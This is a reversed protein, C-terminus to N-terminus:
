LGLVTKAKDLHKAQKESCRGTKSVTTAIKVSLEPAKSVDPHSIIQKALETYAKEDVTSAPTPDDYKVADPKGLGLQVFADNVHKLQKDTCRKFKCVTSVISQLYDPLSVFGSHGKVQEAKEVGTLGTSDPKDTLNDVIDKINKIMPEPIKAVEASYDVTLINYKELLSVIYDIQSKFVYYNKLIDGVKVIEDVEFKTLDVSELNKFVKYAVEYHNYILKHNYMEARLAEAFIKQKGYDSTPTKQYDSIIEAVGDSWSSQGLLNLEEIFRASEEYGKQFQINKLAEKQRISVDSSYGYKSPYQKRMAAVDVEFFDIHEKLYTKLTILYPGKIRQEREIRREEERQKQISTNVINKIDSVIEYVGEYVCSAELLRDMGTAVDENFKIKARGYKGSMLFMNGVKYSFTDCSVLDKGKIYDKVDVSKENLLNYYDEFKIYGKSNKLVLFLAKYKEYLKDFLDRQELCGNVILKPLLEDIKDTVMKEQLPANLGKVDTLVRKLERGKDYSFHYDNTVNDTYLQYAIFKVFTDIDPTNLYRSLTEKLTELNLYGYLKKEEVNKNSNIFQEQIEKLMDSYPEMQKYVTLAFLNQQYIYQQIRKNGRKAILLDCYEKFYDKNSKEDKNVLNDYDSNINSANIKGNPTVLIPKSLNKYMTGLVAQLEKADKLLNPVLDKYKRYMEKYFDEDIQANELTKKFSDKDYVNYSRWRSSIHISGNRTDKELACLYRIVEKSGSAYNLYQLFTLVNKISEQLLTKYAEQMAYHHLGIDSPITDPTFQGSNFSKKMRVLKEQSEGDVDVVEKLPTGDSRRQCLSIRDNVGKLTYKSYGEETVVKVDNNRIVEKKTMFLSLCRNVHAKIADSNRYIDSIGRSRLHKNFEEETILGQSVLSYFEKLNILKIMATEWLLVTKYFTGVGRVGWYEPEPDRVEAGMSSALYNVIFDTFAKQLLSSKALNHSILLEQAYKTYDPHHQRSSKSIVSNLKKMLSEPIPLKADVFKLAYIVYGTTNIQNKDEVKLTLRQLLRQELPSYMDEEDLDANLCSIIHEKVWQLSRTGTSGDGFKIPCDGNSDTVIKGNEDWKVVFSMLDKLGQGGGDLIAKGTHGGLYKYYENYMNLDVICAIKKIDKLTKAQITHMSALSGKDMNFFDAACNCGFRLCESTKKNVAFHAYRVPRPCLDCKQGANKGADVMGDYVWDDLNIPGGMYEGIKNIKEKVKASRKQIQLEVTGNLEKYMEVSFGKFYNQLLQVQDPNFLAYVQESDDGTYHTEIYKNVSNVFNEKSEKWKEKDQFIDDDLFLTAM